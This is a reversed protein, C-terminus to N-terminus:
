GLYHSIVSHAAVDGYENDDGNVGGGNINFCILNFYMHLVNCIDRICM